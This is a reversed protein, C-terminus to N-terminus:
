RARIGNMAVGKALTAVAPSPSGNVAALISELLQPASAGASTTAATTLLAMGLTIDRSALADALRKRGRIIQSRLTAEPV